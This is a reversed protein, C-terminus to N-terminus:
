SIRLFGGFSREGCAACRARNASRMEGCERQTMPLSVAESASELSRRSFNNPLFSTNAARLASPAPAILVVGPQWCWWGAGARATGPEVERCEGLREAARSCTSWRMECCSLPASRGLLDRVMPADPRSTQTLRKPLTSKRKWCSAFLVSRLVFAAANPYLVTDARRASEAGSFSRISSAAPFVAELHRSGRVLHHFIDQRSRIDYLDDHRDGGRSASRAWIAHSIRLPRALM